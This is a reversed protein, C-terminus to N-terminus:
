TIGLHELVDVLLDPGGVNGPVVILRAPGRDSAVNWLSVGPAVPGVVRAHAARLGARAVVASTVGGKSVIVAPRPDITRVIEALREAIDRAAGATLDPVYRRQTAVVALGRSRLSAAAADVVRRSEDDTACLRAVDVSISSGPHRLELQELQATTGEVYSGCVLLLPMAPTPVTVTTTATRGTLVAVFAPGSRVVVRAGLGEAITLGRAILRLDDASEADPVVVAPRGTAAARLIAASVAQPGRESRLEALPVHESDRASFRGASREEAWKALHSTSYSFASDRAYETEHVPVRRGEREILQVGGITYRGAGPLAPVLLMPASEAVLPAVADYEEVLHARLTSDGRLVLRCGPWTAAAATAAEAVAPGAATRGLARSNTLLHVSRDHWLPIDRMPGSWDLVVPVDAMAQAGTPDDDLVVTM